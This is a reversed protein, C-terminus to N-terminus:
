EKRLGRPQKRHRQMMEIKPAFLLFGCYYEPYGLDNRKTVMTMPESVFGLRYKDLNKM